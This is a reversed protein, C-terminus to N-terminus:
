GISVNAIAGRGDAAPARGAKSRVVLVGALGVLASSGTLAVTISTAQALVGMALGGLIEGSSEAQGLFSQVTARVDSTARRNIWIVSVSRVVTWAIGSVVLVGAIGVVDGPAHALMILGVAGAFCGAALVRRAVGVGDIRAEVLHLVAAGVVLTSVGLVTFWVIPDPEQPFGLDVLRRPYLRDFAEAGSSILVMALFVLVIEHDRRSLEVGRRFIDKSEQWRHERTPEFGHETFRLVVYAGLVVMASGAAVIAAGLGVAWGLLGFTVMGLAAGYQAWRALATLVRDIRLPDDLEDTIWATDAGSSFTWGIGWVMQAAVLAPFATTLGTAIMGAGMLVHSVVISWKRSVTDAMVGTPVESVLVTIEMATGLFVLQFASLDAVVVLYLSTVLWYGRFAASRAFGWRLFVLDPRAM